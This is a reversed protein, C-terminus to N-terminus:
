GPQKSSTRKAKSRAAPKEETKKPPTKELPLAKRIQEELRQVAQTRM